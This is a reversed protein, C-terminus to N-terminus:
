EVSGSGLGEREREFKEGYLDGTGPKERPLRGDDTTRRKGSRCIRELERERRRKGSRWIRDDTTPAEREPLNEGAREREPPKGREPAEQKALNPRGERRREREAAPRRQRGTSRTETWSQRRCIKQLSGGGIVCYQGSKAGWVLSGLLDGMRPNSERRSAQSRLESLNMFM